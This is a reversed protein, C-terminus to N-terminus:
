KLQSLIGALLGIFPSNWYIAVENTSYSQSNDAYCKAAPTDKLVNQVYPDNLGNNPGGVVMGPITKGTAQSPRHHPHESPLSGFCTLFCYGTANNGLLYHLQDQAVSDDTGDLIDKMLLLYMGNNAITLNSGWPYDGVISSGYANSKANSAIKQAESKAETEVATRTAADADKATLYAYAGYGAVGQWGLTYGNDPMQEKMSDEYKKDSTTKFLEAYAWFREDVDCVDEYEGTGIDSPNKYGKTDRPTSDLYEAAKKASELCTNAFDKDVKEYVRAAMAMVGAFDATSTTTVPMIVLQDTEEEPLIE